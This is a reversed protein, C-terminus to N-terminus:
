KQFVNGAYFYWYYGRVKFNFAYFFSGLYWIMKLMYVLLSLYLIFIIILNDRVHEINRFM